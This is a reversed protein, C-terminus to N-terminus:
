FIQKINFRINSLAASTWSETYGDTVKWKKSSSDGQATWTIYDTGGVADLVALVTTRDASSLNSYAVSWEDTQSNTGDPAEQSYGDGFKASLVRNTRKRTSSQDIKTTLPMASPM